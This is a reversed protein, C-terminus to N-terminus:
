NGDKDVAEVDLPPDHKSRLLKAFCALKNDAAVGADRDHGGPAVVPDGMSPLTKLWNQRCEPSDGHHNSGLHDRRHGEGGWAYDDDDNNYDERERAPDYNAAACSSAAAGDRPRPFAANLFPLPRLM